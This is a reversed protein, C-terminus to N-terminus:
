TGNVASPSDVTIKAATENARPLPWGLIGGSTLEISRSEPSSFVAAIISSNPILEFATYRGEPMAPPFGRARRGMKGEACGSVVM